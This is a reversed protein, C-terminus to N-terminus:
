ILGDLFRDFEAPSMDGVRKNVNTDANTGTITALKDTAKENDKAVDVSKKYAEVASAQMQKIASMLVNADEITFNDGYRYLTNVFLTNFAEDDFLERNTNMAESIVGEINTMKLTEADTQKQNDFQQQKKFAEIGVLKNIEPAFEMEIRNLLSKSPNARYDSLLEQVALREEPDEIYHLYKAYENAELGAIEKAQQYDQATEYGANRATQQVQQNQFQAWERLQNLEQEEQKRQATLQSSYKEINSYAEILKDVNLEGNELFKEPYKHTNDKSEEEKAETAEETPTENTEVDENPEELLENVLAETDVDSTSNDQTTETSLVENDM